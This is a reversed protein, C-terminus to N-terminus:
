PQSHIRNRGGAKAQYCADDARRIIETINDDDHSIAVLGISAGIDFVLGQWMFRFGRVVDLIANAVRKAQEISCNELLVAFEDGGLRALTDRKRIPEQLLQGLRRLLEDGAIHGCTDNILKFKDLDIFCLANDTQQQKATKIVRQLRKEFERRNVLGTLADYSAQYSLQSSLEHAETIDLLACCIVKEGSLEMSRANLSVWQPRKGGEGDILQFEHGYVEPGAAVVRTYNERAEKRDFLSTVPHDKIADSKKQFLTEAMANAYLVKGDSLRHILLAVPSTDAILRFRTESDRLAQEAKLRETIDRSFTCSAAQGEYVFNNVSIEVPYFSGDKKKHERIISELDGAHAGDWVSKYIEPTCGPDLDYVTLSTLEGYTYGTNKCARKNAYNIRADEDSMYVSEVANDIIFRMIEMQQQSKKRETIDRAFSFSYFEDEFATLRISVEVPFITGDKRRHRSEFTAEREQHVKGAINAVNDSITKLDPDIDSTNMAILEEYSYGLVRCASKNVYIVSGDGTCLYFADVANEVAFQLQKMLRSAVNNDTKESMNM